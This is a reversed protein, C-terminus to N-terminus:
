ESTDDLCLCFPHGAPDLSVRFAVRCALVPAPLAQGYGAWGGRRYLAMIM